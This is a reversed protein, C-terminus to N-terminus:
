DALGVPSKNALFYLLFVLLAVGASLYFADNLRGADLLYGTILYIPILLLSDFLSTLSEATNRIGDEVQEHFLSFIFISSLVHFFVHLFMVATLILVNGTVLPICLLILGNALMAIYKYRLAINQRKVVYSAAMVAVQLSVFGLVLGFAFGDFLKQWVLMPTVAGVSIWVCAWFIPRTAQNKILIPLNKPSLKQEDPQAFHDTNHQNKDNNKLGIVLPIISVCALVFCVSAFIWPYDIVQRFLVFGVLGGIILAVSKYFSLSSLATETSMDGKLRIAAANLSGSLFAIGVAALITAIIFNGYFDMIYFIAAASRLLTGILLAKFVGFKDSIFGTPVEAVMVVVNLLTALFAIQQFGLGKQLYFLTDIISFAGLAVSSLCVFLIFRYNM